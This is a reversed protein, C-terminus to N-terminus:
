PSCRPTMPSRQVMQLSPDVYKFKWEPLYPWRVRRQVADGASRILTILATTTIVSISSKTIEVEAGIRRGDSQEGYEEEDCETPHSQIHGLLEKWDHRCSM